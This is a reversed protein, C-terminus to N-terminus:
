LAGLSRRWGGLQRGIGDALELAFLVQREELLGTSAALRLQVRLIVLMEDAGEIRAERDRDKLALTLEELLELSTTCLRRALVENRGGFRELL